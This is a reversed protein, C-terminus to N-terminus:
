INQSPTAYVPLLITVLTGQNKKSEMKLTGGHNEVINLVISLGIGSGKGVEKTTYFLDFAHALQYEDMGEGYDQVEIKLISDPEVTARIEIKSQYSSADIANVILNQFVQQLELADGFVTPLIEPVELHLDIQKESLRHKLFLTAKSLIESLLVEKPDKKRPSFHLIQAVIERIRNLGEELLDFYETQHTLKEKKKLRSIANIMGGLPNNIEHAIGAVLKGTSALRETIILHQESKKIRQTAQEYKGELEKQYRINERFLKHLTGLVIGVEDRGSPASDSLPYIGQQIRTCVLLLHDLPRLIFRNFLLYLIFLLSLTGLLFLFLIIKLTEPRYFSFQVALLGAYNQEIWIPMLLLASTPQFVIEKQEPSVFQLTFQIQKPSFSFQPSSHTVTRHTNLFQWGKINPYSNLHHFNKEVANFSPQQDFLTQIWATLIEKRELSNIRIDAVLYLVLFGFLLLHVFLVALLFKLRVSISRFPLAPASSFFSPDMMNKEELDPSLFLSLRM